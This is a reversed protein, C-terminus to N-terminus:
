CHGERRVADLDPDRRDLLVLVLGEENRRVCRAVRRAHAEALSSLGAVAVRYDLTGGDPDDETWLKLGLSRLELYLSRAADADGSM